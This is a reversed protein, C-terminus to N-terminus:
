ALSPEPSFQELYPKVEKWLWAVRAGRHNGYKKPAPFRGAAVLRFTHVRCFPWGRRKLAKWDVLILEVTDDM